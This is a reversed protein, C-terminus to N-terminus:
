ENIWPTYGMGLSGFRDSSFMQLQQKQRNPQKCWSLYTHNKDCKVPVKLLGTIFFHDMKLMFLWKDHLYLLEFHKYWWFLIFYSLRWTLMHHSMFLLSAKQNKFNMSLGFDWLVQYIFYYIIVTIATRTKWSQNLFTLHLYCLCNVEGFTQGVPCSTLPQPLHQETRTQSMFGVAARISSFHCLDGLSLTDTM